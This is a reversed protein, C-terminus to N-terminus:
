QEESRYTPAVLLMEMKQLVPSPLREYAHVCETPIQGAQVGEGTLVDACTLDNALLYISSGLLQPPGGAGARLASASFARPVVAQAPRAAILPRAARLSRLLAVMTLPLHPPSLTTNYTPEVLFLCSAMRRGGLSRTHTDPAPAWAHACAQWGALLAQTPTRRVTLALLGSM